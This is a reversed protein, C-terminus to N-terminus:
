ASGCRECVTDQCWAHGLTVIARYVRPRAEHEFLHHFGDRRLDGVLLSWAEVPRLGVVTRRGLFLSPGHLGAKLPSTCHICEDGSGQYRDQWEVSPRASVLGAASFFFTQVSHIRRPPLTRGVAQLNIPGNVLFSSQGLIAGGIGEEDPFLGMHQPPHTPRLFSRCGARRGFFPKSPKHSGHVLRCFGVSKVLIQPDTRGPVLVLYM